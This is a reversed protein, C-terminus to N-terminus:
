TWAAAGGRAQAPAAGAGDMGGASGHGAHDSRAADVVDLMGAM